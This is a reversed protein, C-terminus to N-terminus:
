LLLGNPFASESKILMRVFAEETASAATSADVGSSSSCSASSSTHAGGQNDLIQSLNSECIAWICTNSRSSAAWSASFTMSSSSLSSSSSSSVVVVEVVKVVGVILLFDVLSVECVSVSTDLLGGVEVDKVDKM